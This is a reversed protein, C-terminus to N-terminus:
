SSHVNGCHPCIPKYNVSLATINRYFLIAERHRREAIPSMREDSRPRPIRYDKLTICHYSQQTEQCTYTDIRTKCHACEYGGHFGVLEAGCFPCCDRAQDAYVMCRLILQQIRRFSDIDFIDLYVSDADTRESPDAFLFRDSPHHEQFARIAADSLGTDPRFILTNSYRIDKNVTFRLGEVGGHELRELTLAWDRYSCTVQLDSFHLAAEEPFSFNFHGAAFLSLMTVYDFYPKEEAGQAPDTSGILAKQETFLKLLLYVKRYDKQLRFINTRKLTLTSNDKKCALYVPAKLRPRLTKEIFLLKEMCRSHMQLYSDKAHAYGVHLKGIALFYMLHNTRELLNFQITQCSYMVARLLKISQGVYALIGKILRAFAINEYIKYQEEHVLTMLKRPKPATKTVDSWLETHRSIHQMTQPTIVQVSEVPLIRDVDRLRTIPKSFIKKLAPLAEIIQDLLAEMTLFREQEPVAFLTVKKTTCDDFQLYSIGDHEEAFRGVSRYEREAETQRLCFADSKM